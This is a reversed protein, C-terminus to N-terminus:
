PQPFTPGPWPGASGIESLVYIRADPYDRLILRKLEPHTVSAMFSGGVIAINKGKLTTLRPPQAMPKISNKGVPSFVPNEMESSAGPLRCMGSDDCDAEARINQGCFLLFLLILTTFIQFM